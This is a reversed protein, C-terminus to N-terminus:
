CVSATGTTSGAICSRCNQHTFGLVALLVARRRHEGTITM